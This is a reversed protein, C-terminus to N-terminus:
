FLVLLIETLRNLGDCDAHAVGNITGFHITENDFSEIVRHDTEFIYAFLVVVAKVIVNELYFFHM